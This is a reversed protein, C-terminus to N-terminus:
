KKLLLPNLLKKMATFWMRLIGTRGLFLITYIEGKQLGSCLIVLILALTKKDSLSPFQGKKQETEIRSELITILKQVYEPNLSPISDKSNGPLGIDCLLEKQQVESFLFRDSTSPFDIDDCQFFFPDSAINELEKEITVLVEQLLANKNQFYWYVAGKTVGIKKAVDDITFKDYGSEAMVEMAALIIRKKADDKYQPAVKPM